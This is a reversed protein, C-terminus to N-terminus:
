EAFEYGFYEIDKSFFKAVLEKSEDDYYESYHAKLKPSRNLCKPGKVVLGLKERVFKFDETMNEVRGIFDMNLEGSVDTLFDYSNAVRIPVPSKRKRSKPFVKRWPFAPDYIQKIFDKFEPANDRDWPWGLDWYRKNAHYNYFSLMKSWPNRVFSFKFFDDLNDIEHKQQILRLPEHRTKLHGVRRLSYNVSSGACKNIHVFIFKPEKLSLM